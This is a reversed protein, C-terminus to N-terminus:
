ALQLAEIGQGGGLVPRAQIHDPGSFLLAQQFRPGGNHLGGAAIGTHSQGVDAALPAIPHHEGHRFGHALLAAGQQGSQAGLQHERLAAFAHASGDGLCLLQQLRVGGGPHRVLEIVRGISLSVILGGARLDPPIGVACHVHQYGPYAGATGDGARAAVQLLLVGIDLHHRHFGGLGRDEGAALGAGM